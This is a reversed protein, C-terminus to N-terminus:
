RWPAPVCIGPSRRSSSSSPRAAPSGRRLELAGRRAPARAPRPQWRRRGQGRLSRRRRDRSLPRRVASRGGVGRGPATPATSRATCRNWLRQGPGDAPRVLLGGPRWRRSVDAHGRGGPPRVRRGLRRHRGPGRSGVPRTMNWGDNGGIVMIVVGPAVQAVGHPRGEALQLLEPQEPRDRETSVGKIRVLGAATRDLQDMQEAVYTSLSDGTVLVRLPRQRTPTRITIAGQAPSTAPAPSSPHGAPQRQRQRGPRQQDRRPRAARRGVARAGRSRLRYTAEPSTVVRATTGASPTTSPAGRGTSGPRSRRVPRAAAGGGPDHEPHAGTTMGEGARVFRMSDLLAARSSPSWWSPVVTQRASLLGSRQRAAPHEVEDIFHEDDASPLDTTM